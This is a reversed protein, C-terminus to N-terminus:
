FGAYGVDLPSNYEEELVDAQTNALCLCHLSPIKRAIGLTCFHNVFIMYFPVQSWIMGVLNGMEVPQQQGTKLPDSGNGLM